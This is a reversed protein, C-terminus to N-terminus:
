FYAPTNLHNFSLGNVVVHVQAVLAKSTQSHDDGEIIAVHQNPNVAELDVELAMLDVM